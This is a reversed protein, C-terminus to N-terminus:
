NCYNSMVAWTHGYGSESNKGMQKLVTGRERFMIAKDLKQIFIPHDHQLYNSIVHNVNSFYHEQSIWSSKISIAVIQYRSFVKVRRLHDPIDGIKKRSHRAETGLRNNSTNLIGSKECIGELYVQRQEIHLVVLGSCAVTGHSLADSHICALLTHATAESFLHYRKM